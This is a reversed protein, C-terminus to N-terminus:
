WYQEFIWNQLKNSLEKRAAKYEKVKGEHLSIIKELPAMKADLYIQYEKLLFKAHMGQTQHLDLLKQYAIETLCDVAEERQKKREAKHQSHKKRQNYLLLENEKELKQLQKKSKLYIIDKELLDIKQNWIDLQSNEKVYKSNESFMNFILPVFQSHNQEGTIIGSYAWLHGLEGHNDEVVLVGFMKGVPHQYNKPGLNLDYFWNKFGSLYIKLQEAAEVAIPHPEYLFPFTFKSPVDITENLDFRHLISSM